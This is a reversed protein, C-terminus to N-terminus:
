FHRLNAPDVTLEKTPWCVIWNRRLLHKKTHLMEVCQLSRSACMARCHQADLYDDLSAKTADVEGHVDEDGPSGMYDKVKGVAEALRKEASTSDRWQQIADTLENQEEYSLTEFRNHVEEKVDKIATLVRRLSQSLQDSVEQWSGM